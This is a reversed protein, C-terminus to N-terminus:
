VWKGFGVVNRELAMSWDREMEFSCWFLAIEM